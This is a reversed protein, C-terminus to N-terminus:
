GAPPGLPSPPCDAREVTYAVGAVQWRGDARVLTFVNVGCHSFEGDVYFDYPTWVTAVPGHVRVEPSWMRELLPQRGAALSRLFAAHPQARLQWGEETRVMAVLLGDALM